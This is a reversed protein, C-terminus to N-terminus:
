ITSRVSVAAGLVSRRTAFGQIWLILWMRHLVHRNEEALLEDAGGIVFRLVLNVLICGFGRLRAARCGFRM